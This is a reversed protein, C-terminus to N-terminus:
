HAPTHQALWTLDNKSATDGNVPVNQLYSTYNANFPVNIVSGKWVHVESHGDGYVMGSANAHLSGPLETFSTGSGDADAPNVYFSADDDSNPNEDMIAWCDSPSPSHMDGLKKVNYFQAWNGGNGPAFWKRGDGLAGDMACTRIRNQFGGQATSLKNDAPCLFIKTENAIYSGMLATVQQGMLTQNITLYLTNTNNPNATWDLVVGFPCIWNQTQAGLNRDSNSVLRDSNDTAYMFWALGLQKYNSMCSISIARVKARSLAPLLMAALIAIIAIVVLLEILTFAGHHLHAGTKQKRHCMM